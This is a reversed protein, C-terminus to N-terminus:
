RTARVRNPLWTGSPRNLRIAEINLLIIRNKRPPEANDHEVHTSKLMTSHVGFNLCYASSCKASFPAAFHCSLSHM